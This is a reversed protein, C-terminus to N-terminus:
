FQLKKLQGDKIVEVTIKPKAPAPPKYRAPTKPAPTNDFTVLPKHYGSRALLYTMAAEYTAGKTLATTSDVPSRLAFQIKGENRTLSLIEAEEPTVELTYVDVPAAEGKENKQVQTGSALVLINDLIIKTIEKETQPDQWTVLVDVRNGPYIFGSLGIVKDGGVAVARKGEGLLASVGGTKVDIPALRHEIIPENMRLPAISVRGVLPGTDKFHGPPASKSLFDMKKVMEPTLKTGPILDIAAVAVQIIESKDTEVTAVSDPKSAQQQMWSYIFYSGVGAIVLALFIPVLAKWRGM